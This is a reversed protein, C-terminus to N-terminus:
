FIGILHLTGAVDSGAEPESVAICSVLDGAVTPALFEQRLSDSGFEALAPTAMSTQFVTHSSSPFLPYPILVQVCVAM